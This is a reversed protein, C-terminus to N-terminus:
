ILNILNILNESGSGGNILTRYPDNPIEPWNLNHKARNENKWQQQKVINKYKVKQNKGVLEKCTKYAYTKLFSNIPNNFEIEENKCIYTKAQKMHLHKQLISQNYEKTM